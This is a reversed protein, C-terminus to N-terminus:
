GFQVLLVGFMALSGGALLQTTLFAKGLILAMIVTMVPQLNQFIAVKTTELKGLAYFWLLYNIVSAIIGLYLIEEWHLTNIAPISQTDFLTLAFPLYILTGIIMNLGTVRLAGYKRVLPQGLFTFLSWAIVAILVLVNGRTHDLELSAGHEAMILAVGCFAIVIGFTKWMSLRERHVTLALLFVFAPTMGYLLAGNAPTTYRMGELYLFQNIPVNLIGLVLLKMRDSKEIGRFLSLGKGKVVLILFLLTSATLARFLLVIGPDVAVTVDQAVIHTTSALFQQFFLIFYIM